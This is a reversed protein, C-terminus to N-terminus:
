RHDQRAGGPLPLPLPVPDPDILGTGPCPNHGLCPDPYPNPSLGPDQLYDSSLIEVLLLFKRLNTM